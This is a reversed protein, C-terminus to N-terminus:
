RCVQWTAYATYLAMIGAGIGYVSKPSGFIGVVVPMFVVCAAYVALGMLALILSLDNGHTNDWFHVAIVHLLALVLATGLLGM